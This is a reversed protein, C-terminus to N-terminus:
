GPCPPQLFQVFAHLLVQPCLVLLRRFMKCPLLANHTFPSNPVGPSPFSQFSLHFFSFPFLVLFLSSAFSSLLCPLDVCITHSFFLLVSLDLVISLSFSASRFSNSLLAFLFLLSSAFSISCPFFCSPLLLFYVASSFFRLLYLLSSSAFSRADTPSHCLQIGLSLYVLFCSFTRRRYINKSHGVFPKEATGHTCLTRECYDLATLLTECTM